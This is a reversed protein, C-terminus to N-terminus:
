TTMDSVRHLRLLFRPLYCTGFEICILGDSRQMLQLCRVIRQRVNNRYPTIIIITVRKQTLRREQHATAVSIMDPYANQCAM